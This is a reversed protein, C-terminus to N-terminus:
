KKKLTLRKKELLDKRLPLFIQIDFLVCLSKHSLRQSKLSSTAPVEVPVNVSDPLSSEM